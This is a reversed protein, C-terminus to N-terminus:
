KISTIVAALVKQLPEEESISFVRIKGILYKVRSKVISNEAQLSNKLLITDKSNDEILYRALNESDM